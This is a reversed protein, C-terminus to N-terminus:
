VPVDSKRRLTHWTPQGCHPCVLLRKPAGRAKWRIGGSEWVSREAGCQSCHLHWSLSETRMAAAWAAPLLRTFCRQLLTMKMESGGRPESDAGDGQRLRGPLSTRRSLDARLMWGVWSLGILVLVSPGLIWFVYPFYRGPEPRNMEIMDPGLLLNGTITIAVAVLLGILAGAWRPLTRRCPAVLLAILLGSMAGLLTGPLIGLVFAFPGSCIGFIAAGILADSARGSTSNISALLVGFVIPALAAYVSALSGGAVAGLSVGRGLLALIAPSEKVDM